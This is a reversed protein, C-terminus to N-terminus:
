ATSAATQIRAPTLPPVLRRAIEALRRGQAFALRSQKRHPDSQRQSRLMAPATLLEEPLDDRCGRTRFLFAQLGADRSAAFPLMLALLTTENGGHVSGKLHLRLGTKRCADRKGPPLSGDWFHKM